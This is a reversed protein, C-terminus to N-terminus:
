GKHISRGIADSCAEWVAENMGPHPHIMDALVEAKAQLTIALTLESIMESANAGLIHGGIIRHESDIIVKVFGEREGLTLARGNHRFSFTGTQVEIGSNKAEKETLGVSAVEPNTYICAPVTRQNIRSEMGLAHEAATKGEMFALHALLKGGTIDGAAYVGKINTEMHEDVIVAGNEIHLPFDVFFDTNLSRGTAVLVKEATQTFDKGKMEYDLSLGEDTRTIQKVGASLKFVVGQRKMLKLIQTSIEEEQEPLIQDLAEMVTVKVGAAAYMTAFELGIVGGGIIILSEPLDELDLAEDSTMVGESKIGKIAPVVPRAGTAIILKECRVHVEGDATRVLLRDPAIVVGKGNLIKINKSNLLQSLGQGLSKVIRNKREVARNWFIDTVQSEIGFEKSKRVQNAADASVLLAKTPICGVNM